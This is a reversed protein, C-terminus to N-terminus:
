KNKFEKKLSLNKSFLQSLSEGYLLKKMYTKQFKNNNLKLNVMNKNNLLCEKKIGGFCYINVLNKHEKDSFKYIIQIIVDKPKQDVPFVFNRNYLAFSKLEDNFVNQKTEVSSKIDVTIGNIKFDFEDPKNNSKINEMGDIIYEKINLKEKNDELYNKFIKESIAGVYIKFLRKQYQKNKDENTEFEQQRNFMISILKKSKNYIELKEEKSLKDFYPKLDIIEELNM